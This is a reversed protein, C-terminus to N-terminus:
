ESYIDLIVNGKYDFVEKKINFVDVEVMHNAIINQLAPDFGDLIVQKVPLSPFFFAVLPLLVSSNHKSIFIPFSKKKRNSEPNNEWSQAHVFTKLANLEPFCLFSNLFKPNSQIKKKKEEEKKGSPKNM